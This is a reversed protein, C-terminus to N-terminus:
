LQLSKYWELQYSLERLKESERNLEMEIPKAESEATSAAERLDGAVKRRIKMDKQLEEVRANDRDIAKNVNNQIMKVIICIAIFTVAILVAHLADKSFKAKSSLEFVLGIVVVTTLCGTGGLLIKPVGKNGKRRQSRANIAAIEKLLDAEEVDCKNAGRMQQEMRNKLENVQDRLQNVKGNASLIKSDVQKEMKQIVIDFQHRMSGKMEAPAFQLASRFDAVIDDAFCPLETFNHSKAAVTNWWGRYDKPYIDLHRCFYGTAQTWENNQLYINGRELYRDESIAAENLQSVTQM